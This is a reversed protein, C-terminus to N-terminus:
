TSTRLNGERRHPGYTNPNSLQGAWFIRHIYGPRAEEQRVYQLTTPSPTCTHPFPLPTSNYLRPLLSFSSPRQTHTDPFTNDLCVPETPSSRVPSTHTSLFLLWTSSSPPSLPLSLSLTSLPRHSLPSLSAPYHLYFLLFTDFFFSPCRPAEEDKYTVSLTRHRQLKNDSHNSVWRLTLLSPLKTHTHTTHETDGKETRLQRSKM